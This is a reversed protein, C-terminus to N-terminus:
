AALAIARCEYEHMWLTEILSWADVHVWEGCFPCRVACIPLAFDNPAWVNRKSFRM